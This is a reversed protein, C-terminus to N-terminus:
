PHDSAVTAAMAFQPVTVKRSKTAGMAQAAEWRHNPRLREVRSTPARTDEPATACAAKAESGGKVGSAWKPEMRFPMAPTVTMDAGGAMEAAQNGGECRVVAVETLWIPLTRPALTAATRPGSMTGSKSM